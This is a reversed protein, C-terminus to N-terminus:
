AADTGLDCDGYLKESSVAARHGATGPHSELSAPTRKKKRPDPVKALIDLLHCSHRRTM